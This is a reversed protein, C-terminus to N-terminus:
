CFGSIEGMYCSIQFLIKSIGFYMLYGSNYNQNQVIDLEIPYNIEYRWFQEVARKLVRSVVDPNGIM